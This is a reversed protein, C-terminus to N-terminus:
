ELFHDVSLDERLSALLPVPQRSERGLQGGRPRDRRHCHTEDLRQPLDQVNGVGREEEDIWLASTDVPLSGVWLSELRHRETSLEGDFVVRDAAEHIMAAHSLACYRPVELGKMRNEGRGIRIQNQRQFRIATQDSNESEAVRGFLGSGLVLMRQFQEGPVHRHDEFVDAQELRGGEVAEGSKRSPLDNELTQALFDLARFTVM